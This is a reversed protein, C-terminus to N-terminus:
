HPLLLGEPNMSNLLLLTLRLMQRLFDCREIAGNGGRQANDINWAEYGCLAAITYLKEDSDNQTKMITFSIVKGTKETSRERPSFLSLESHSINIVTPM